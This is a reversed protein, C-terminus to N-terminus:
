KKPLCFSSKFRDTPMGLIEMIIQFHDPLEAQLRIEQNTYPHTFGLEWAHLLLNELGFRNRFFNNQKNDGHTSDGIVYHRAHAM